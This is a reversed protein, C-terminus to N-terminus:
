SRASPRTSSRSNVCAWSELRHLDRQIAVRGELTNVVDRLKTDNNRKMWSASIRGMIESHFVNDSCFTM